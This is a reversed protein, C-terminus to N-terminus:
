IVLKTRLRAIMVPAPWTSKGPQLWRVCRKSAFDLFRLFTAHFKWHIEKHNRSKAELRHTFRSWGPFDVHGAGTIIARSQDNLLYRAVAPPNTCGFAVPFLAKPAAEPPKIYKSGESKIGKGPISSSTPM